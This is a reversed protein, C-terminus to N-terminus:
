MELPLEWWDLKTIEELAGGEGLRQTNFSGERIGIENDGNQTKATATNLMKPRDGGFRFSGYAVTYRRIYTHMSLIKRKPGWTCRRRIILYIRYIEWHETRAGHHFKSLHLSKHVISSNEILLFRCHLVLKWLMLHRSSWCPVLVRGTGLTPLAAKAM